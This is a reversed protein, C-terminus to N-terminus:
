GYRQSTEKSNKVGYRPSRSSFVARELGMPIQAVPDDHSAHYDKNLDDVLPKAKPAKPMGVEKGRVKLQRRTLKLQQKNIM